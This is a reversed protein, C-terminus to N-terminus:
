SLIGILVVIVVNYEMRTGRGYTGQLETVRYQM